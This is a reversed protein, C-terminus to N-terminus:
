ELSTGASHGVRARGEIRQTRRRTRYGAATHRPDTHRSRDARETAVGHEIQGCAREIGGTERHETHEPSREAQNGTRRVAQETSTAAVTGVPDWLNDDENVATWLLVVYERGDEKEEDAVKAPVDPETVTPATEEVKIEGPLQVSM